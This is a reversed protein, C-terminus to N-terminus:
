DWETVELKWGGDDEKPFYEQGVKLFGFPLQNDNALPNHVFVFDGGIKPPINRVSARSYLIGSLQRYDRSLFLDTRVDAGRTRKITSRYQYGEHIVSLTKRDLTVQRAGIPFVAKIIRPPHTEMVAESIKCSNLAIVYRDGAAILGNEVYKAYKDNYKEKIAACYRLIIEEDPVRVAIGTPMKPVRDPNVNTGSTPAIAEIWVKYGNCQIVVDPGKDSSSIPISKDLLTCTLYMEWFRSDFDIAIQQKFHRDAYPRYKEWLDQVFLKVQKPHGEQADRIINYQPDPAELDYIFLDEDM